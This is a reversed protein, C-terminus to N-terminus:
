RLLLTLAAKCIPTPPGLELAKEAPGPAAPAALPRLSGCNLNRM